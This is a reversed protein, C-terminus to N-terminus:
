KVGCTMCHYYGAESGLPLQCSGYERELNDIISIILTLRTRMLFASSLHTGQRLSTVSMDRTPLQASM